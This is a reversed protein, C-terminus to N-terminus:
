SAKGLHLDLVEAAEVCEGPERFVRLTINGPMQLRAAWVRSQLLLRKREADSVSPQQPAPLPVSTDSSSTAYTGPENTHRLEQEAITSFPPFYGGSDVSSRPTPMAIRERPTSAGPGSTMSLNKLRVIPSGGPSPPASRAREESRLSSVISAASNKRTREIVRARVGPAVGAGLGDPITLARLMARAGTPDPIGPGGDEYINADRIFVALIQEPRLQAQEAYLELDQEGSDGVLIFRSHPFSTFVEEVGARKRVAPASLLGNFITRTSYLRLRISGPPLQAHALFEQIVPLLEFPSNSVYHFRVGRAWMEQYWEGMGKIVNEKLDRVFVNYFVSRAGSLISSLKVTDDIDSIVRVQCHSLAVSQEARQMGTAAMIAGRIKELPPAGPEPLLEAAIRLEDERAPPSFAIHIGRPHKCLDEWQITFKASFAGEPSTVVTCHAIPADLLELEEPTRKARDSPDDDPAYVSIRVSRSPLATAWFPQLRTELNRHLRKLTSTDDIPFHPAPSGARLMGTEPIFPLFDTSPSVPSRFHERTPTLVSASSSSRLKHERLTRRESEVNIEDPRPPLGMSTVLDETSRSMIADYPGSKGDLKPLSAFSKAIRVVAKQSRTLVGFEREKVAVGSVFVDIDYPEALTGLDSETGIHYKRSAWGPFLKLRETRVGLAAESGAVKDAVKQGAWRLWSQKKEKEVSVGQM